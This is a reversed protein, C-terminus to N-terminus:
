TITLIPLTFLLVKETAPFFRTWFGEMLFCKKERALQILEEAEKANMTFPKECLIHKNHNLALSVGNKHFPHIVNVYVIEVEPDRVM